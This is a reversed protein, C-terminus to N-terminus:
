SNVGGVTISSVKVTPLGMSVPVSQGGKGCTWGGKAFELDNGVMTIKSLVDPGNGIINIDKVPKTIKGDEILYGTKVYFSFDGPGIYVQGNTFTDAYLGKKVSAIIEDKTHPGPLMYTNRMRPLPPYRFSQRRGSGTPKVKYHQASIKDHMYSRLIGDRVLFTKESQNGEDDINISGRMGPNTGDDVISVFSEAVKKDIKDAFISEEKRNFDAEMGHGIAEHLLIGSSGAALIVPMEGAEPKVSQFLIMTKQYAEEAILDLNEPSFYEISYRGCLDYSGSERQGDKEVTCSASLESMPQYDYSIMGDSNIFLMYTTDDSFSVRTKVIDTDKAYVKENLSELYPIKRDIKVTEWPTSIPYFDAPKQLSFTHPPKTATDAAINAATKAALKMAKPSIEETFSFGTQDGKLVRIGVGFDVSTYARNVVKDELGIYSSINHQFFLDCYDGGRSLAASMVEKIIGENVGFHEFYANLDMGEGNPAAFAALPDFQFVFPISALAVGKASTELFKRRTIKDM